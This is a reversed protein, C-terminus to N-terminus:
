LAQERRASADVRRRRERVMRVVREHPRRRQRQSGLAKDHGEVGIKGM